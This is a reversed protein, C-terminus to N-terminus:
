ELNPIEDIDSIIIYDDQHINELAKLIYNRHYNEREWHNFGNPFDELKLYKIKEKFKKFNDINM